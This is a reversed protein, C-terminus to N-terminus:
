VTSGPIIVTDGEPIVEATAVEERGTTAVVVTVLAGVFGLGGNTVRGFGGTTTGITTGGTGLEGGAALVVVSIRVM